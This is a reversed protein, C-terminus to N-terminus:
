DISSHRLRAEDELNALWEVPGEEDTTLVEDEVDSEIATMRFLGQQEYMEDMWINFRARNM